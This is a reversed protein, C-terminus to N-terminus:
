KMTRDISSDVVSITNELVITQFGINTSDSEGSTVWLQWPGPMPNEQVFIRFTSDSLFTVNPDDFTTEKSMILSDPRQLMFEFDVNADAWNLIFSARDVQTNVSVPINRSQGPALIGTRNTFTGKGQTLKALASFIIQHNQNVPNLEVNAAGDSVETAIGFEDPFHIFRGGTMQALTQMKDTDVDSSMGITFLVVGRENLAPIVEMPDAGSNHRGDSILFFVEPCAITDFTGLLELATRLGEGIASPGGSTLSEIEAKADDKQTETTITTLPYDVSATNNFSVVAIKTGINELGVCYKANGKLRNFRDGSMSNSRDLIIVARREAVVKSFKPETLSTDVSDHPFPFLTQTSVVTWCSKGHIQQQWSIPSTVHNSPNCFFNLKPQMLANENPCDIPEKEGLGRIYYNDMLCANIDSGEICHSAGGPGEYEDRLGYALHSFEHAITYAGRRFDEIRAWLILARFNKQFQGYGNPVTVSEKCVTDPGKILFDAYTGNFRGLETVNEELRCITIKGFQHKGHTARHIIGSAEIFRAKITDIEASDAPFLVAVIFDFKGTESNYRGTGGVAMQSTIVIFYLTLLFYMCKRHMFGRM